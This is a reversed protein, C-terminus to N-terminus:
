SIPIVYFENNTCLSTSPAVGTVEKPPQGTADVLGYLVAENTLTLRCYVPAGSDGWCAKVNTDNARFCQAGASPVATSCSNERTVNVLNCTGSNIVATGTTGLKQDYGYSVIYCTKFDIISSMTDKNYLCAAQCRPKVYTPLEVSEINNAVTISTTTTTIPFAPSGFVGYANVSQTQVLGQMLGLCFKTILVRKTKTASIYGYIGNCVQTSGVRFNGAPCCDEVPTGGLMRGSATAPPKPCIPQPPTTTTPTTTQTTSQTTTATTITTTTTATTTTTIVTPTTSTIPTATTTISAFCATAEKKCFCPGPLPDPKDPQPTNWAMTPNRKCLGATENSTPIYEYSQKLLTKGDQAFFKQLKLIGCCQSDNTVPYFGFCSLDTTYIDCFCPGTASFSCCDTNNEACCTNNPTPIKGILNCQAWGGRYCVTVLVACLLLLKM